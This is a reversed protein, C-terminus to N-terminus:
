VCSRRPGNENSGNCYHLYYLLINLSRCLGRPPGVIKRQGKCRLSNVNASAGKEAEINDCDSPAVIRQQPSARPIVPGSAQVQSHWLM